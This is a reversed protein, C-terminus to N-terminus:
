VVELCLDLDNMETGISKEYVVQRIGHFRTLIFQNASHHPSFAATPSLVDWIVGCRSPIIVAWGQQHCSLGTSHSLKRECLVRQRHFINHKWCRRHQPCQHVFLGTVVVLMGCFNKVDLISAYCEHMPMMLGKVSVIGMHTCSFLKRHWVPNLRWKYNKSMRSSQRKARLPRWLTLLFM